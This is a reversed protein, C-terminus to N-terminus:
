ITHLFTWIKYFHFPHFFQRISTWWHRDHLQRWLFIDFFDEGLRDTETKQGDQLWQQFSAGVFFEYTFHQHFQCRCIICITCMLSLKILLFFYGTLEPALRHWYKMSMISIKRKSSFDLAAVNAYITFKKISRV